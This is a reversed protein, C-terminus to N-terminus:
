QPRKTPSRTGRTVFAMVGFMLVHTMDFMVVSSRKMLIQMVSGSTLRIQRSEV